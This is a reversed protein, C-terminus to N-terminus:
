RKVQPEDIVGQLSRAARDRGTVVLVRLGQLLVAVVMGAVSAYVLAPAGWGGRVLLWGLVGTFLFFAVVSNLAAAIQDGLSRLSYTFVLQVGDFLMFPAMLALLSASLAIVAANDSFPMVLWGAFVFYCLGILAMGIATLGAAIMARERALGREGAGVANGVRVGAASAFGVGAAFSFNHLSFVTQFAAAPITGLQTSLAILWSFGALELGASLAPAAGFGILAPIGAVARRWAAGSMDRIGRLRADPLLWASALLLLAGLASVVSTALAAGPAGAAPLGFHGDVWAYALVANLPLMVLNVAMVRRPQSIGELFYSTAALVFQGPYALAMARLVAAGGPVLDPAIGIVRVLPEAWTHLVGLGILGLVLAFLLGRRLEDGSRAQEGAGEARATFVLVGAMGALGMVISVFTVARGAALAGIQDLGAHGVIAVDILHMTTWNLSTLAVPWALGLIIRAESLLPTPRRVLM